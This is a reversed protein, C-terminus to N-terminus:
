SVNRTRNNNMLRRVGARGVLLGAIGATGILGWYIFKLPRFVFDRLMDAMDDPLAGKEFAM